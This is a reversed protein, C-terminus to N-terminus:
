AAQKQGIVVALPPLALSLVAALVIWFGIVVLPRRTVLNGLRPYVGTVAAADTVDTRPSM